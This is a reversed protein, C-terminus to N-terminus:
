CMVTSKIHLRVGCMRRMMARETRELRRIDEVKVPWTESGYLMVSRVYTAYLLGKVKLSAGRVSVMPGLQNFKGWACRVRARVADEADGGAGIMDGLYCFKHVVELNVGQLLEVFELNKAMKGVRQGRCVSCKFDVEKALSGKVRSCRGHVWKRCGGCKIADREGVGENCVGCPIKGRPETNGGGEWCRMVKTKGLNVRLGKDELSKKWLRLKELLLEESEAMLVLDDAYLLGFPLGGRCKRSIAELVIIFLLPSLVSGQHVGVKVEFSEGV